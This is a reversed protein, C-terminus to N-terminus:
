ENTVGERYNDLSINKAQKRIEELTFKLDEKLKKSYYSKGSCIKGCILYVKSM